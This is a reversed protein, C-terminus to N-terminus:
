EREITAMSDPVDNMFIKELMHHQKQLQNTENKKHSRDRVNGNAHLHYEFSMNMTGFSIYFNNALKRNM